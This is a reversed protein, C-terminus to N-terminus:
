PDTATTHDHIIVWKNKLKRWILTFVGQLDGIDRSLHYTGILLASQADSKRLQLVKFTLKGMASRDPYRRYYNDKVAKWGSEVGGGSVFTLQMDPWYTAMFRDIDGDNWAVQQEFLRSVIAISDQNSLVEQAQGRSLGLTLMMLFLTIKYM